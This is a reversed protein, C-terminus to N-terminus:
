IALFHQSLRPLPQCEVYYPHILSSGVARHFDREEPSQDRGREKQRQSTARRDFQCSTHFRAVRCNSKESVGDPELTRGDGNASRTSDCAYLYSPYVRARSLDAATGPKLDPEAGSERRLGHFPWWRRLGPRQRRCVSAFDICAGKPADSLRRRVASM